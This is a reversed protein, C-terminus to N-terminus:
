RGIEKEWTSGILGLKRTVTLASRSRLAAIEDNTYGEMDAVWSPAGRVKPRVLGVLRPFYSEWLKQFAESDGSHFHQLWYTVSGGATM